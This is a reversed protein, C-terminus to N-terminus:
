TTVRKEFSISRVTGPRMIHFRATGNMERVGAQQHLDFRRVRATVIWCKTNPQALRVVAHVSGSRDNRRAAILASECVADADSPKKGTEQRDVPHPGM